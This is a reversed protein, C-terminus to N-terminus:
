RSFGFPSCKSRQTWRKPQLCHNLTTRSVIVCSITSTQRMPSCGSVGKGPFLFVAPHALFWDRRQTKFGTAADVPAFNDPEAEIAPIQATVLAIGESGGQQRVADPNDPAAELIVTWASNERSSFLFGACQHFDSFAIGPDRGAPRGHDREGFPQYGAALIAPWRNIKVGAPYDIEGVYEPGGAEIIFGELPRTPM